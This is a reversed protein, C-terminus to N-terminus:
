PSPTASTASWHPRPHHRRVLRRVQEGAARDGAFDRGAHAPHQLHFLQAALPDRAFRARHRAVRRRDPARPSFASVPQAPSRLDAARGPARHARGRSLVPVRATRHVADGVRALRRLGAAAGGARGARHASRRAQPRACRGAVQAGAARRHQGAQGGGPLGACDGGALAMALHLAATQAGHVPRRQATRRVHDRPAPLSATAYRRMCCTDHFFAM